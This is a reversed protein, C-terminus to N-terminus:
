IALSNNMAEHLVPISYIHSSVRQLELERFIKNTKDFLRLMSNAKNFGLKSLLWEWFGTTKKLQYRVEPNNFVQRAKRLAMVPSSHRLASQLQLTYNYQKILQNFNSKTIDAHPFCLNVLDRAYTLSAIFTDRDPRDPSTILPYMQERLKIQYQFTELLMQVILKEETHGQFGSGCWNSDPQVNKNLIVAHLFPGAQDESLTNYIVRLTGANNYSHSILKETSSATIIKKIEEATLIDICTQFTESGYQMLEIIPGLIPTVKQLYLRKRCGALKQFIFSFNDKNTSHVLIDIWNECDLTKLVDSHIRDCFIMLCRMDSKAMFRKFFEKHKDVVFKLKEIDLGNFFQILEDMSTLLLDLSLKELFLNCLDMPLLKYIKMFYEITTAFSPLRDVIVRIYFPLAQPPLTGFKSVLEPYSNVDQVLLPSVKPHRMYGLMDEPNLINLIYEYTGDYESIDPLFPLVIEYYAKKRAAPLAIMFDKFMSGTKTAASLEDNTVLDLFYKKIEFSLDNIYFLTVGTYRVGKLLRDKVGRILAKASEDSLLKIYLTIHKLECALIEEVIIRSFVEVQQPNLAVLVDFLEPLNKLKACFLSAYTKIKCLEELEEVNLGRILFLIEEATIICDPTVLAYILESNLFLRDCGDYALVSFDNTYLVKKLDSKAREFSDAYKELIAEKSEFGLNVAILISREVRLIETIASAFLDVCADTWALNCINKKLAKAFMPAKLARDKIEIPLLNWFIRFEELAKYATPSAEAHTGGTSGKVGGNYLGEKLRNLAQYLNTSAAVESHFNTFAEEIRSTIGSHQLLRKKENESVPTNLYPNVYVSSIDSELTLYDFQDIPILSENDDSTINLRIIRALPQQRLDDRSSHNIHHKITPMLIDIPASKEDIEALMNAVLCAYKTGDSNPYSTYSLYTGKIKQWRNSLIEKLRMQRQNDLQLNGESEELVALTIENLFGTSDKLEILRQFSVPLEESSYHSPIAAIDEMLQSLKDNQMNFNNDPM